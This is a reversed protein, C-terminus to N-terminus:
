TLVPAHVLSALWIMYSEEENSLPGRDLARALQRMEGPQLPSCLVGDIEPRSLVFRYHDCASPLWSSGPLNLTEFTEPSVRSMVSKFNFILGSRNPSLLPFLDRQAGPHASNYRIFAIDLLNYNDATLALSRQHFTAGVARAGHMGAARARVLSDFRSYFSSESAVAGAIMLDVHDLGPIEAIVENFQLASFLPNDLYSVVGVVIEQRRSTNGELLKALGKRVGEYLPWHLDATVFFFNVGEEYAAIVTEPSETLGLCIPSVQLGSRGLWLREGATPLKKRLHSATYMARLDIPPSWNGHLRPRSIGRRM